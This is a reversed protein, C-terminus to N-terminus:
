PRGADRAGGRGMSVDRAGVERVASQVFKRYDKLDKVTCLIFVRKAM